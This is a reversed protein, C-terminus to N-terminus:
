AILVSQLNCNSATLNGAWTLYQVWADQNISDRKKLLKFNRQAHPRLFLFDTNLIFCHNATAQNGFGGDLFFEIGMFFTSMFGSSAKNNEPDVIRQRALAANHILRWYANDAVGFDPKNGGRVVQVLIRTLYDEINAASVAAGGDSSGSFKVSRWYTFNARNIGGYTGTAPNDPVAAGLGTLNKGGNGTGDLYIHSALQNVLSIEANEIRADLLDIIQEKGANQLEELGSMSVAVAYQKFPFNAASAVDQAGNDLAEYGSYSKATTNEAYYHPQMITTGGSVPRIKGKKNLRNWFANHKSITDALETERSEITLAAMESYNPSAM